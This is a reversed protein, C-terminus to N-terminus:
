AFTAMVPLHDSLAFATPDDPNLRFAGEFLVRCETLRDAIPGHVWVYDIRMRPHAARCTYEQGEGKISFTDLLGAGIWQQYEPKQPMHNLDGQLLVPRNAKIDTKMVDLIAAIESQRIAHKMPYLHVNYVRLEGLPTALLARGFHRTLLKEADPTDQELPRNASELVRHRTLLAGPFGGPYYVYTMKMVEAIRAVVPENPAEVLTVVDPEYRALERAVREPIQPRAAALRKANEKTRPWGQCGYVNYTISRFRSPAAPSENDEGLVVRGHTLTAACTAGGAILFCRRNMM